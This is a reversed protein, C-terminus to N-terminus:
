VERGDGAVYIDYVLPKFTKKFMFEGMSIRCFKIIQLSLFFPYYVGLVYMSKKKRQICVTSLFNTTSSHSSSTGTVIDAMDLKLQSITVARYKIVFKRLNSVGYANNAFADVSCIKLLVWRRLLDSTKFSNFLKISQSMQSMTNRSLNCEVVLKGLSSSSSHSFLKPKGNDRIYHM